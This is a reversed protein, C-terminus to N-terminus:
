WAIRSVAALLRAREGEELEWSEIEAKLGALNLYGKAIGNLRAAITSDTWAEKDGPPYLSALVAVAHPYRKVYYKQHRDEAPHFTADPVIETDPRGLGAQERRQLEAEIAAQQGADHYFLLSQYQRGKYGNINFPNHNNWFTRLIDEFPLIAEDYLLRVTETHDGMERYSPDAGAGGAYGVSTRVVGPLAGFLAEPSWFCGM